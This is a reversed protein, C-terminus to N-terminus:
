GGVDFAGSAQGGLEGTEREAGFEEIETLVMDDDDDEVSARLGSPSTM